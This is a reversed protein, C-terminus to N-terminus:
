GRADARYGVGVRGQPSPARTRGELSSACARWSCTRSTTRARCPAACATTTFEARVAVSRTPRYEVRATLTVGDEQIPTGRYDSRSLSGSGILSVNRRLDYRVELTARESLVGSANLVTTEEIRSVARLRVSTLPTV